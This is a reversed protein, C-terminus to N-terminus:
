KGADYTLHTSLPPARTAGMLTFVWVEPDNKRTADCFANLYTIEPATLAEAIVVFGNEEFFKAVSEQNAETLAFRPPTSRVPGVGNEPGPRNPSPTEATLRTNLPAAPRELVSTYKGPATRDPSLQTALRRLRGCARWGSSDLAESNSRCQTIRSGADGHM